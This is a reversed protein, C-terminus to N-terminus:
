DPNRSLIEQAVFKHLVDKIPYPAEFVRIGTSFIYKAAGYGIQSVVIASCDKLIAMIKQFEIEGHRIIEPNKRVEVFAYDKDHVDFIYFQSSKAFHLDINEGDTSAIAIRYAM